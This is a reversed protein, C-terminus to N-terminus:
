IKSINKVIGDWISYKIGLTDLNEKFFLQEHISADDHMVKMIASKDHKDNLYQEVLDRFYKARAKSMEAYSERPSEVLKSLGQMSTSFLDQIPSGQADIASLTSDYTIYLEAGTLAIVAGASHAFSKVFVRVKGSRHKIVYCIKSCWLAPGGHTSIVIDVPEHEPVAVLDEYFKEYVNEDKGLIMSFISSKEKKDLLHLLKPRVVAPTTSKSTSKFLDMKSPFFIFIPIM